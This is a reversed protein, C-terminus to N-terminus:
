LRLVGVPILTKNLIAAMECPHFIASSKMSQSRQELNELEYFYIKVDCQTLMFFVALVLFRERVNEEAENKYMEIFNFKKVEVSLPPLLRNEKIIKM